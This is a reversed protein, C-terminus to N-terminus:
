KLVFQYNLRGYPACDGDTYLLMVDQMFAVNDTVKLQFTNGFISSDICYQISKGSICLQATGVIESGNETLREVNATLGDRTRNIVYNYGCPDTTTDSTRIWLNMWNEGSPETITDKTTVLVYVKDDRKAVRIEAIDNRLTNNEYTKRGTCDKFNRNGKGTFESVGSTIGNWAENLQTPSLLAKQVKIGRGTQGKFARINQIMQMYFNDGYYGKIPEIDRSFEPSVCDFFVVTNGVGEVETALKLATWENWELIFAIRADSKIAVDWQEQFNAGSNVKNKDNHGVASTYGRGWNSNYYDINNPSNEYQVSNSMHMGSNQAVSVSIIGNHVPQPRTFEIWPLGNEKFSENPWQSDRFYFKDAVERSLANKEEARITIWPKGDPNRGEDKDCFWLEKYRNEKYIFEYIQTVRQASASNTLFMIQPIDFGQIRYKELTELVVTVSEPYYSTNTTDFALFDIGASILMRIHNDVVWPDQQNYYGFLPEAYFHMQVFPSGGGSFVSNYKMKSIDYIRGFRSTGDEAFENGLWLTYFLGVLRQDTEDETQSVPLIERGLADIGGLAYEVNNKESLPILTEMLNEDKTKSPKTNCGVCVLLAGTILLTLLRSISFAKIKNLKNMVFGGKVTIAIM